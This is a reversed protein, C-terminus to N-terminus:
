LVSPLNQLMRLPCDGVFGHPSSSPLQEPMLRVAGRQSARAPKGGRASDPHPLSRAGEQGRVRAMCGLCPTYGPSSSGCQSCTPVAGPLFPWRGALLLNSLHMNEGVACNIMLLKEEKRAHFLIQCPTRVVPVQQKSELLFGAVDPLSIVKSCGQTCLCPSSINSWAPISLPAQDVAGRETLM